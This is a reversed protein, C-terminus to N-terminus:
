EFDIFELDEITTSEKAPVVAGAPKYQGIAKKIVAIHDRSGQRVWDMQSKLIKSKVAVAFDFTSKITEGAENTDKGNKNAKVASLMSKFDADILAKGKRIADMALKGNGAYDMAIAPNISSITKEVRDGPAFENKVVRAIDKLDKAGVKQLIKAKSINYFTVESSPILKVTATLGAKIPKYEYMKVKIDCAKMAPHIFNKYKQVFKEGSAFFDSVANLLSDFWARIKAWQKKIMEELNSFREKMTAEIATSLDEEDFNEFMMNELVLDELYATSQFEMYEMSSEKLIVDLAELSEVINDSKKELKSIRKEVIKVFALHLSKALKVFVRPTVNRTKEYNALIITFDGILMFMGLRMAMNKLKELGKEDKRKELEDEIAKIIKKDKEVISKLKNIDNIGNVASKILSTCKTRFENLKEKVSEELMDEEFYEMEEYAEIVAVFLSEEITESDGKELEAIRKEAVKDFISIARKFESLAHKDYSGKLIKAASGLVKFINLKALKIKAIEEAKRSDIDKIEKELNAVSEKDQEVEKRLKEPDKYFKVMGNYIIETFKDDFKKLKEKLSEELMDEEFYEMEEFAASAELVIGELESHDYENVDYGEVLSEISYKRNNFLDFINEM